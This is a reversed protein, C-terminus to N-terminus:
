ISLLVCVAASAAAATLLGAVLAAQRGVVTSGVLELRGAEEDSRTHRIVVFIALLAAFLGAWVGYRWATLSGLSSGDLRGYLFRLAPNSGGTAALAARGAETPYLKRFTYATGAVGATIVYVGAALGIRDRRVALRALEGTGTLGAPPRGPHALVTM